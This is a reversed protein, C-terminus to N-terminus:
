IVDNQRGHGERFRVSKFMYFQLCRTVDCRIIYMYVTYMGESTVQKNHICLNDMVVPKMLM